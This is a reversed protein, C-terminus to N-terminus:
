PLAASHLPPFFPDSPRGGIRFVGFIPRALADDTHEVPHLLVTGIEPLKAVLLLAGDHESAIRQCSVPALQLLGKGLELDGIATDAAVDAAAQKEAELLVYEIEM